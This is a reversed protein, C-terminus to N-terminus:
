HLFGNEFDVQVPRNQWSRFDSELHFKFGLHRQLNASAPSIIGARCNTIGHALPVRLHTFVIVLTPMGRRIDGALKISHPTVEINANRDVFVVDEPSRTIQLIWILNTIAILLRPGGYISRGPIFESPMKESWIDM